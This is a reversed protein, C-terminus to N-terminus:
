LLVSFKCTVAKPKTVFNFLEALPPLPSQKARHEWCPSGTGLASLLWLWLALASKAALVSLTLLMQAFNAVRSGLQHCGGLALKNGNRASLLLTSIVPCYPPVTPHSRAFPHQYVEVSRCLAAVERPGEEVM